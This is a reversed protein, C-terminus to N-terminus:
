SGGEWGVVEALNPTQLLSGDTKILLFLPTTRLSTVCLDAQEQKKCMTSELCRPIRSFFPTLDHRWHDGPRFPPASSLPGLENGPIRTPHGKLVLKWTARKKWLECNNQVYQLRFDSIESKGTTRFAANPYPSVYWPVRIASVRDSAIRKGITM